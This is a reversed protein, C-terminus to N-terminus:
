SHVMQAFSEYNLWCCRRFPKGGTCGTLYSILTVTLLGFSYYIVRQRNPHQVSLQLEVNFFKKTEYSPHPANSLGIPGMQIEM